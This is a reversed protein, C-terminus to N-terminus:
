LATQHRRPHKLSSVSCCRKFRMNLLIQHAVIRGARSLTGNHNQRTFNRLFTIASFFPLYDNITIRSAKTFLFIVSKKKQIKFIKIGVVWRQEKPIMKTSWHNNLDLYWCHCYYSRAFCCYFNSELHMSEVSISSEYKQHVFLGVLHAQITHM